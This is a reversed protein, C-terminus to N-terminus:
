GRGTQDPAVGLYGDSGLSNLYACLTAEKALESAWSARWDVTEAIAGRLTAVANAKRAAGQKRLEAKRAPIGRAQYASWGGLTLGLILFFAFGGPSGGIGVFIGIMTTIGGFVAATLPGGTFRVNAVARETEADIHGSLGQVLDRESARGDLRASWGELELDVAAPLAGRNAVGLQGVGQVIWPKALSVSWRQTYQSVGMQEPYFASNTVLTLFDVDNDFAADKSAKAAAAKDGEHDIVAQLQAERRRLPAEEVDYNTALSNLIDDVRGSLEPRQELPGEMLGRFFVEARGFVTAGRYVDALQPWTPSIKPLLTISPDVPGRMEDILERWRRVQADVVPQRDNLQELWTSVHERVLPQAEHGFVGTAVADLVTTFERSLSSPDQRVVYQRLWRATAANRGNRRLVLAFFLSTKDNDRRIAEALAREALVRDDRIWSAIAVLAPALWYRPTSVMLEESLQRITGQTVVGADMAQLIGTALRRVDGFHGFGTQLEDRVALLETRADQKNKALEDKRVYELFQERLDQLESRAADQTAAVYGVQGVLKVQEQAFQDQQRRLQEIANLAAHMQGSSAPHTM